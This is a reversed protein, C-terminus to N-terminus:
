EVFSMYGINGANDASLEGDWEPITFDELKTGFTWKNAVASPFRFQVTQSNFKENFVMQFTTQNGMLQNVVQIKTGGAAATYSYNFLMVTGNEATNFGYVGAAVTYQGVAPASAVRTYQVGTVSNVCGLDSQFAASNAVTVAGAAITGVESIATLELGTSATGNFFLSNVAAANLKAAKAKWTAKGAGRALAVPFQFQGRLEKISFNFDFAIDQLVGFQVPTPNAGSPIGFVSGSGFSVQM